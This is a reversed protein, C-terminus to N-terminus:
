KKYKELHKSMRNESEKDAKAIEIEIEPIVAEFFQQLMYEGNVLAIPSCYKFVVSSIDGCFATDIEECIFDRINETIEILSETSEDGSSANGENDFAIGKTKLEEIKREIKEKCKSFRIFLDPDAPNFCISGKEGNDFEIPFTKRGTNLKM